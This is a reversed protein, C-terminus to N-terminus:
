IKPRICNSSKNLNVQCHRTPLIINRVSFQAHPKLIKRQAISNEIYISGTNQLIRMQRYFKRYLRLIKPRIYNSSKNLNIQRHRTPLIINRVSCQDPTKLIKRQAISNEIYINFEHISTTQVKM